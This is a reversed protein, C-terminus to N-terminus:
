SVEKTKSFAITCAYRNDDVVFNVATNRSFGELFKKSCRLNMVQNLYWNRISPNANIIAAGTGHYHYTSYIPEVLPLEVNNKMLM